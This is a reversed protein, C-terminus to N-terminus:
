PTQLIHYQPEIRVTFLFSSNGFVCHQVVVFAVQLNGWLLIVGRYLSVVHLVTSKVAQSCMRSHCLDVDMFKQCHGGRPPFYPFPIPSSGPAEATDVM